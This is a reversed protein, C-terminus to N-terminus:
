YNCFELVWLELFLQWCSHWVHFCWPPLSACSAKGLATMCKNGKVYIKEWRRIAREPLRRKQRPFIDTTCCGRKRQHTADSSIIAASNWFKHTKSNLVPSNHAKAKSNEWRRILNTSKNLYFTHQVSVESEGICIQSSLIIWFDWFKHSAWFMLRSPATIDSINEKVAQDRERSPRARTKSFQKSEMGGRQGRHIAERSGGEKVVQFLQVSFASM